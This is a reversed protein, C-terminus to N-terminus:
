NNSRLFFFNLAVYRIYVFTLLTGKKIWVKTQGDDSWCAEEGHSRKERKDETNERGLRWM